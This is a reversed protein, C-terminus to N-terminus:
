YITTLFKKRYRTTNGVALVGNKIASTSLHHLVVHADDTLPPMNSADLTIARSGSVFHSPLLPHAHPPDPHAPPIPSSPVPTAPQTSSTSAIPSTNEEPTVTEEIVTVPVVPHVKEEGLGSKALHHRLHLGLGDRGRGGVGEARGGVRGGRGRENGSRKESESPSGNQSGGSPVPSNVRTNLILKDLYRPLGPAPPINPAPTFGQQHHGGGNSSALLYSEEERAAEILEQPLESTWRAHFNPDPRTTGLKRLEREREREREREDEVDGDTPASWFSHGKPVSHQIQVSHKSHHHHQVPSPPPLVVNVYNALSGQDDVATPYADSVRWVEDVLFRFHHTGPPFTVSAFFTQSSPSEREMILRGKWDDDVARALHVARGGGRWTIRVSVLEDETGVVGNGGEEELGLIVAENPHCGGELRPLALPISSHVVERQFGKHNQISLHSHVPTNNNPSPPPVTLAPSQSQNYLEQIRATAAQQRANYQQNAVPRPPPPFPLHTHTSPEQNALVDAASSVNAVRGNQIQRDRGREIKERERERAQLEQEPSTPIPISASKPPPHSHRDRSPPQLHPTLSLSALDPLELSKKKTRLSRHSRQRPPPATPIAATSPHSKSPSAANVNAMNMIQIQVSSIRVTGEGGYVTIATM